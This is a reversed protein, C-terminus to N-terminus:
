ERGQSDETLGKRVTRVSPKRNRLIRLDEQLSRIKRAQEPNDVYEKKYVVSERKRRLRENEARLDRIQGERERILRENTTNIIKLRDKEIKIRHTEKQLDSIKVKQAKGYVEKTQVKEVMLLEDDKINKMQEILNNLKNVDLNLRKNEKELRNLQKELKMITIIPDEGTTSMSVPKEYERTFDKRGSYYYENM